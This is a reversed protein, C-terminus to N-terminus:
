IPSSRRPCAARSGEDIAAYAEARTAASYMALLHRTDTAFAQAERMAETATRAFEMRDLIDALVAEPEAQAPHAQGTRPRARYGRPGHESGPGPDHGRVPVRPHALGLRVRARHRGHPGTRRLRQGCLGAGREALYDLPVPFDRSWGGGPLQRRMIAVRGGAALTVGDLRLTDRNTLPRGAADVAPTNM